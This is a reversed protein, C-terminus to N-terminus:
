VVNPGPFNTGEFCVVQLQGLVCVLGHPAFNITAHFFKVCVFENTSVVYLVARTHM